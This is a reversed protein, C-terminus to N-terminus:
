NNEPQESREGFVQLCSYFVDIAYDNSHCKMLSLNGRNESAYQLCGVDVWAFLLAYRIRFCEGLHVICGIRERLFM